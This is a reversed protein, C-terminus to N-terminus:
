HPKLREMRGEAINPELEGKLNNTLIEAAIRWRQAAMDESSYAFKPDWGFAISKVTSIVFVGCDWGNKQTPGVGERCTWENADYKDGLEAALWGKIADWHKDGKTHFSDFYEVTRLSPSIVILTWHSHGENIPLFVTEVDLLAEGAIKARIGWRSVGKPGKECLTKYFFSNYAHIPPTTGRKLNALDLVHDVSQETSKNVMEDNLWANHGVLTNFTQRTIGNHQYQAIHVRPGSSLIKDVKAKMEASIPPFISEEPNERYLRRRREEEAAEAALREEEEKRAKEEAERQRQARTSLRRNSSALRGTEPSATAALISSVRSPSGQSAGTEADDAKKESKPDAVENTDDAKEESEDELALRNLNQATEEDDESLYITNELDDEDDELSTDSESSSDNDGTHAQEIPNGEPDVDGEDESMEQDVAEDVAGETEENVEDDAEEDVENDAEEDLDEDAEEDVSEDDETNAQGSADSEPDIIEEGAEAEGEMAVDETDAQGNSEGEPDVGEEADETDAQGSTEGEPNISEEGAEVAGGMVVDETDAQVAAEGEPDIDGGEESMEEDVTAGDETGDEEEEEDESDSIEVQAEARARCLAEWGEPDALWMMEEKPIVDRFSDATIADAIDLDETTPTPPSAPFDAVLEPVPHQQGAWLLPVRFDRISRPVVRDVTEVCRRKAANVTTEAHRYTTAVLMPAENAVRGVAHYGNQVGTMAQQGQRQSARLLRLWDRHIAGGVEQGRREVYTYVHHSDLILPYTCHGLMM